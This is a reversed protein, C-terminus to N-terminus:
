ELIGHTLLVHVQDTLGHVVSHSYQDSATTSIWAMVDFSFLKTSCNMCYALNWTYVTSFDIVTSGSVRICNRTNRGDCCVAAQEQM